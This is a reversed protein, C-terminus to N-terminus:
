NDCHLNVSFYESKKLWGDIIRVTKKFYYIDQFPEEVEEKCLDIKEERSEVLKLQELFKESDERIPYRISINKEGLVTLLLYFFTVRQQGDILIIESEKESVTIGQLFLETPSTKNLITNSISELIYEVSNLPTNRKKGWVYGRQYNPVVFKKGKSLLERLTILSSM